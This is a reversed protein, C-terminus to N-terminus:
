VHVYVYMCTICTPFAEKRNGPKTKSNERLTIDHKTICEQNVRKRTTQHSPQFLSQIKIHNTTSQKCTNAYFMVINNM